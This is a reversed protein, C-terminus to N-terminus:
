LMRETAVNAVETEADEAEDLALQRFCDPEAM